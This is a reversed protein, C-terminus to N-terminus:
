SPAGCLLWSCCLSWSWGYFQFYQRSSTPISSHFIKSSRFDFLRNRCISSYPVIYVSLKPKELQTKNGWVKRLMDQMELKPPTQSTKVTKLIEYLQTEFSSDMISVDSCDKLVIIWLRSYQDKSHISSTTTILKSSSYESLASVLENICRPSPWARIRWNRGM